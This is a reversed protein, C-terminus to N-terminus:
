TTLWVKWGEKVHAKKFTYLCLGEDIGKLVNVIYIIGCKSVCVNVYFEMMLDGLCVCVIRLMHVNFKCKYVTKMIFASNMNQNKVGGYLCNHKHMAIHIFMCM